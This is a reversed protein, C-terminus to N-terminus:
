LMPRTGPCASWRAVEGREPTCLVTETFANLCVQRAFFRSMVSGFLYVGSGGFAHEDCTMTIGLGHAHPAPGRVSRLRRVVPACRIDRVAMAVRSVDDGPDCGLLALMDRIGAAPDRGGLYGTHNLQLHAILKWASSDPSLGERPWTPGAVCRIAHVPADTELEFDTRGGGLPMHLPLDRQTCLVRLGLQRLSGSFPAERSDVLSLFAESGLYSSRAGDRRRRGSVLRPERRLTYYAADAQHWSHIDGGYFPYFERVPSHSDGYGRARVVDYIEFDMPLTRDAVVHFETTGAHLPLRDADREFLNVVPTCHLRLHAHDLIAELREVCRDLWIVIDFTGQSCRLTTAGDHGLAVFQFRQPFAFYERLLRHGSFLRGEHPLLAEDRDFGRPLIDGAPAHIVREGQFVSFGIGQGLIHEYLLGAVDGGGCLFLDIGDLVVGDEGVDPSTTFQMRLAARPHVSDPASLGLASIASLGPLYSASVLTVPRLRVDHASRYRCAQEGERGRQARIMSGRPVVTGQAPISQDLAVSMQVVAMSPTPLSLGPYLMDLLHRTFVPYQADLKMQVRATLFAFGELLREVYPDACEMGRMGLRGAIKPHAAAFEVGMERVHRLEQNYYELFRSDM